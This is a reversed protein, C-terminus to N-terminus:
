KVVFKSTYTKEGITTNVTYIGAAFKKLNVSLSNKGKTMKTENHYVLQGSANNVSLKVDDSKELNYNIMVFDSAPNPSVSVGFTSSPVTTIGTPIAL